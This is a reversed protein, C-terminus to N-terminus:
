SVNTNKKSINIKFLNFHKRQILEILANPFLYIHKKPPSPILVFTPDFRRFEILEIIFSHRLLCDEAFILQISQIMVIIHYIIYAHIIPEVSLCDHVTLFMKSNHQWYEMLFSYKTTENCTNGTYFWGIQLLFM